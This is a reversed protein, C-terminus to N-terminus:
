VEDEDEKFLELDDEDDGYLTEWKNLSKYMPCGEEHFAVWVLPRLYWKPLHCKNRSCTRTICDKAECYTRDKPISM